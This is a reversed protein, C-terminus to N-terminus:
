GWVKRKIGEKLIATNFNMLLGFRIGSLKLYTLLQAEHIPLLNEVTKLELILKKDVVVDLRYGCDMKVEKYIVPLPVQREFSLGALKLEYCLCEEYASELLGPGLERHVQIACGIVKQSLPDKVDEASPHIM